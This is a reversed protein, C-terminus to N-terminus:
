KPWPIRRGELSSQSALELAVMVDIGQESTVALPAKDLVADRVNEYYGRYDGNPSAIRTSKGDPATLTGCDDEQERGWDNGSPMEGRKLAEEQPDMGYKVFSGRESHIVFRPGPKCVMLSSRLVARMRPYFLTVDFADDVVAGDRETRVDASIAEPTGFLLLAQDILHSGLDFLIGSGPQRRERWADPRLELRFRDYHSEFQVVRGLSEDALVQQVARFDGDWRRNQYISLVKRHSRALAALERAQESNTTFPKDVVVHRGHRLCEAAIEFHTVNPTTVVILHIDPIELLESLSRVIRANPYLEAADSGSRQLIAALRLGPVASIFPAHFM